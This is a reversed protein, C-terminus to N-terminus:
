PSAHTRWVDVDVVLKRSTDRPAAQDLRTVGDRALQDPRQPRHTSQGPGPGGRRRPVDGRQDRPEDVGLRREVVDPATEADRDPAPGTPDGVEVGRAVEFAHIPQPA